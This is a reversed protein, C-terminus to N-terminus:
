AMKPVIYRTMWCFDCDFSGSRGDYMLVKIGVSSLLIVTGAVIGPGLVRIKQLGSIMWMTESIVFVTTREALTDKCFANKVSNNLSNRLPSDV